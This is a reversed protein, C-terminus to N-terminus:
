IMGLATLALCVAVPITLNDDVPSILEVLGAVLSAAIAQVPSVLLLLVVANAAIGAASGEVSKGNRIRHKGFRIGVVTAIGDLVALSLIGAAAIVTPFLLICFLASATFYFAGKGPLAVKRELTDVLPTILPLKYGRMLSDTLIFGVFLSAALVLVVLPKELFLAMAAIGVGFFMHAAQRLQEDMPSYNQLKVHYSARNPGSSSPSLM